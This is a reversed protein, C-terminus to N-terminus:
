TNYNYTSGLLPFAKVDTPKYTYDHIILIAKKNLDISTFPLINLLTKSNINKLNPENPKVNEWILSNQYM